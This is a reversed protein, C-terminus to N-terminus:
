PQMTFGRKGEMREVHSGDFLMHVVPRDSSGYPLMATGRKLMRYGGAPFVSIRTIISNAADM